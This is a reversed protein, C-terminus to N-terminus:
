GESKLRYQIVENIHQIYVEYGTKAYAEQFEEWLSDFRELRCQILKPLYESRCADARKKSSDAASGSPFTIQWTPYYIPNEEPENFFDAFTQYGYSDLLKKDYESLSEYFEGPQYFASTANGDSFSGEIKPAYSTLANAKNEYKWSIQAQEARMDETRYFMGNEDVLYDEGEIGWGFIKQWREDLMDDFLQLVRAPDKCSTTIMFGRGYNVVPKEMYHEEIGEEYVLPISLYTYEYMGRSELSENVLGVNWYQDSFGLVNGESLKEIYQSYNFLCAEPDILGEANAECLKRYFREAIDMTMYDYAICTEEDVICNGNNPYGALFQPPNVLGYNFEGDNLITYGITKKANTQPYKEVYREILDFYEDLTTLKPYGFEELVRKQIFFGTGNNRTMYTHDGYYIGYDPLVYIHGDDAKMREMYPEYHAYLRPYNPLLDELPVAGGSSIIEENSFMIDPYDGTAILVDYLEENDRDNREFTCTVKLEEELMAYIKNNQTPIESSTMISLTFPYRNEDEATRSGCGTLTPVLLTFILLLTLSYRIRVTDRKGGM